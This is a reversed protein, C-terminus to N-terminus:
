GRFYQERTVGRSHSTDIRSGTTSVWNRNESPNRNGEGRSFSSSPLTSTKVFKLRRACLIRLLALTSYFLLIGVSVSM